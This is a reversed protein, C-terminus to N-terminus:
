GEVEFLTPWEERALVIMRDCDVAGHVRRPLWYIARVAQGQEDLMDDQVMAQLVTSCRNCRRVDQIERQM